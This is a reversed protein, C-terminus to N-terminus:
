LVAIAEIGLLYDPNALGAVFNMTIIPPNPRNGWARQFAEFGTQLNQGQVVYVSWKIVNEFGAGAAKLAVEINKLVQESQVKFDGKGVIEGKANNSNQEGIYITKPDGSVVIVNTFAPNKILGDPNIHRIMTTSM